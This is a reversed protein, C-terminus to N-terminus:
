RVYVVRLGGWQLPGGKPRQELTIERTLLGFDVLRDPHAGVFDDIARRVEVFFGDHFILYGGHAMHPLVAEGDRLAGKYSHDGDILVLDFPAGAAAAVTPIVDPSTAEFLKARSQLQAWHESTIQPAPDVCYMRADSQLADLAAAVILASGGQFTGIELYRNPRLAFVLSFLMLREARSMLMPARAIIDLRTVDFETAFPTVDYGQLNAQLRGVPDRARDVTRTRFWNRIGPSM